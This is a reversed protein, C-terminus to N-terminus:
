MRLNRVWRKFKALCREYIPYSSDLRAIRIGKSIAWNRSRWCSTKRLGRLALHNSITDRRVKRSLLIALASLPKHDGEIAVHDSINDVLEVPLTPSKIMINQARERRDISTAVNLTPKQHMICSAHHMINWCTINLRKRILHDFWISDAFWWPLAGGTSSMSIIESYTASSPSLLDRDASASADDVIRCRTRDRRKQLIRNGRGVVHESGGGIIRGKGFEERFGRRNALINAPNDNYEHISGPIAIM